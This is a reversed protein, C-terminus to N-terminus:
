IFSMLTVIYCITNYIRFKETTLYSLECQTVNKIRKILLFFIDYPLHEGYVKIGCIETGSDELYTCNTLEKKVDECKVSM